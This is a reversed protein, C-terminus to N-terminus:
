RGLVSKSGDEVEWLALQRVTKQQPSRARAKKAKEQAKKPGGAKGPQIGRPYGHSSTYAIDNLTGYEYRDEGMDSTEQTSRM